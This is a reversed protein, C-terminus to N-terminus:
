EHSVEEETGELFAEISSESIFVRGKVKQGKIHGSTILSDLTPLCCNLIKCAQARTFSKPSKKLQAMQKEIEERVIPRMVEVLQPTAEVELHM